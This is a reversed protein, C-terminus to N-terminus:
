STTKFENDSRIVDPAIRASTEICSEEPFSILMSHVIVIEQSRDDKIQGHCKHIQFVFIVSKMTMSAVCSIHRRYSKYLVPKLLLIIEM